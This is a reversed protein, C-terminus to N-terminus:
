DKTLRDGMIRIGNLTLFPDIADFYPHLPTLTTALGGTAIKKAPMGLESEIRSLMEKVLGIYGIMIGAQLAHPTNKGIASDPLELPVQPLQATNHALARMATKLGPAISVGLIAGKESIVTFTLATGFDVVIAATHVREFASVANAVLDSGIEDLNDIGLKLQKFYSPGLILPTQKSHALIASRISPTIGPVVSSLTIHGVKNWDLKHLRVYEVLRDSFSVYESIPHRFVEAWHNERYWGLVIDTNGIDIALHTSSGM